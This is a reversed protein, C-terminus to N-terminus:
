QGNLFLFHYLLPLHKPSESHTFDAGLKLFIYCEPIGFEGVDSLTSDALVRHNMAVNPNTVSYADTAPALNLCKSEDRSTYANTVIDEDAWPYGEGIVLM